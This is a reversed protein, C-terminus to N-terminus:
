HKRGFIAVGLVDPDLPDSGFSYVQKYNQNLFDILSKGHEVSEGFRNLGFERMDRSLLVIRDPPHAHLDGLIEENRGEALAFPAFFSYPIPDPIRTLYNLMLGEPMVLLSQVNNDIADKALYQRAQELILGSANENQDFTYFQDPGTGVSFTHYSYFFNSTSVAVGVIAIVLLTVLAQHWKLPVGKLKFFAPISVLLIAVAVVGALGAQVFGYHFIRPSLVMRALMSAAASWLLLRVVADDDISRTSRYRLIEILLGAVLIGPLAYGINMWPVQTAGAGALVILAIVIVKVPTSGSRFLGIGWALAGALVVAAAGWLVELGLNLLPHDIGLAALQFADNKLVAAHTVNIWATNSSLFAERFSMGGRLVFLGIAIADPLLGAVIFIGALRFWRVWPRERFERAVILLFGFASVAASAFMIEPKMLLSAGALLGAASTPLLPGGGRAVVVANSAIDGTAVLPRGGKKVVLRWVLVLGLLLLTGHTMEHSYPTLFNYNDIAVLHSFSFVGVFFAASAFAAWRGWGIRVAYYLIVLIAAYIVINAGVLTTLGVGGIRFFLSNLYPSLPGYLHLDAKYLVAGQTIRWPLYLERGFDIIPDPWKGWSNFILYGALGALIALCGADPWVGWGAVAPSAKRAPREMVMAAPQRKSRKGM